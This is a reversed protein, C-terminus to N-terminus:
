IPCTHAAPHHQPLAQHSVREAKRGLKQNTIQLTAGSCQMTLEQESLNPNLMQNGEWLYIDCFRFPITQKRDTPPSYTYEGPRLLFFFAIIVLDGVAQYRPDRSKLGQELLWIPVSIPVALKRRPPPDFKRFGSLLQKIKQTYVGQSNVLPNRQGDLEFKKTVARLAVQVTETCVQCKRASFRGHRVHTAFAALLKIQVKTPQHLCYPDITPFACALWLTWAAWFRRREKATTEVIGNALAQQVNRFNTEITHRQNPHVLDLLKGAPPTFTSTFLTLFDAPHTTHERSAFDSMINFLGSLHDIVPLAARFHQLRIALARLIRSAWKSSSNQM